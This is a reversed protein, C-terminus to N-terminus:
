RTGAWPTVRTRNFVDIGKACPSATRSVAGSTTRGFPKAGAISDAGVRSSPRCRVTPLAATHRNRARWGAGACVPVAAGTAFTPVTPPLRGAIVSVDFSTRRSCRRPRM